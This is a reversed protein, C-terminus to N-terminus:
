MHQGVISPLSPLKPKKEGQPSIAPLTQGPVMWGPAYPPPTNTGVMGREMMNQPPSLSQNPAPIQPYALNPMSEPRPGDVAAHGAHAEAVPNTREFDMKCKRKGHKKTVIHTNLHNLSGYSKTCGPYSCTYKRYIQYYRRRFRRAKPPETAVTAQPASRSRNQPPRNQPVPPPSFAQPMPGPSMPVMNAQHYGHYPVHYYNPQGYPMYYQQPPSAYYHHQPVYSQYASFQRIQDYAPAPSPRLDAPHLGLSALPPVTTPTKQDNLISPISGKPDANEPM